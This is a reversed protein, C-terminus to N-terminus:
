NKPKVRARDVVLTLNGYAGERSGNLLRVTQNVKSESKLTVFGYDKGDIIMMQEVEINHRAFLRELSNRSEFNKVFLKKPEREFGHGHSHSHGHGHGAGHNHHYRPKKHSLHANSNFHGFRKKASLPTHSGSGKNKMNGHGGVKMNKLM